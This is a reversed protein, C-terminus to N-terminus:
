TSKSSLPSDSAATCRHNVDGAEFLLVRNEFLIGALRDKELDQALCVPLSAPPDVGEVRSCRMVM